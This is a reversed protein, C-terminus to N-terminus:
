SNKNLHILNQSQVEINAVAEIKFLGTSAITLESACVSVADGIVSKLDSGM